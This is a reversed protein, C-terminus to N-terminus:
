PQQDRMKRFPYLCYLNTKRDREIERRPRRKAQQQSREAGFETRPASGLRVPGSRLNRVASLHIERRQRTHSSTVITSMTQTGTVSFLIGVIVTTFGKPTPLSM